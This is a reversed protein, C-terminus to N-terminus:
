LPIHFKPQCPPIQLPVSLVSVVLPQHERQWFTQDDNEATAVFEISNVGSNLTAYADFKGGAVNIETNEWIQGGAYFTEAGALYQLDDNLASFHVKNIVGQYSLDVTVQPSETAPIVSASQGPNVSSSSNSYYGSDSDSGGSVPIGGHLDAMLPFASYTFSAPIDYAATGKNDRKGNKDTRPYVSFEAILETEGTMDQAISIGFGVQITSNGDSGEYTYGGTTYLGEANYNGVNASKFDVDIFYSNRDFDFNAASVDIVFPALTAPVDVEFWGNTGNQFAFVTPFPSPNLTITADLNTSFGNSNSFGFTQTYSAEVYLNQSMSATILVSYQSATTPAGADKALVNDDDLNYSLGSLSNNAQDVFQVPEIFRYVESNDNEGSIAFSLFDPPFYIDFVPHGYVDEQYATIRPGVGLTKTAYVQCTKGTEIIDATLEYATRVTGTPEFAAHKDAGCTLTFSLDANSEVAGIVGSDYNHLNFDWNSGHHFVMTADAFDTFGYVSWVYPFGELSAFTAAANSCSPRASSSFFSNSSRRSSSPYRRSSSPSSFFSTPIPSSSPIQSSPSSFYSPKPLSSSSKSFHSPNPLSSSKELSSSPVSSSFSPKFGSSGSSSIHASSTSVSNSVSPTTLHSSGSQSFSSRYLSSTSPFLSSSSSIQDSRFVSSSTTRSSSDDRSAKKSSSMWNPSSQPTSSLLSSIKSSGQASFSSDSSSIFTSSGLFSSYGMPSSSSVSSSSGSHSLDSSSSLTSSPLKSYHSLVSSSSSTPENSTKSPFNSFFSTSSSLTSSSDSLSSSLSSSSSLVSSSSHSPFRSDTSTKSFFSLSSSSTSPLSSFSSSSTSTLSSFSSLVTSTLKSLSSWMSSSLQSSSSLDSSFSSSSLKSSSSESSSLQSSSLDSSVSSSSLQSSSSVSSSPLYSSSWVSSSLLSSSSLSSSISSSSLESSSSVSSSSLQSSSSVSSSSLKSSSSM